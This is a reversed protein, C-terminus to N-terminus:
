KSYKPGSKLSCILGEFMVFWFVGSYISFIFYSMMLKIQNVNNIYSKFSKSPWTCYTLKVKYMLYERKDFTNSVKLSPKKLKIFYHFIYLLIWLEFINGNEILISKKTSFSVILQINEQKVHFHFKNENFCKISRERLFLTQLSM